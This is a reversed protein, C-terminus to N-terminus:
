SRDLFFLALEAEIISGVQHLEVIGCGGNIMEKILKSECKGIKSRRVGAEAEFWKTCELDFAHGGEDLSDAM